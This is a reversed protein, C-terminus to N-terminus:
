RHSRAAITPLGLQQTPAPRVGRDSGFNRDILHHSTVEVELDAVLSLEWVSLAGSRLWTRKSGFVVGRPGAIGTVMTPM